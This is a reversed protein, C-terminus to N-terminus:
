GQERQDEVPVGCDPDCDPWDEDGAPTTHIHTAHEPEHECDYM